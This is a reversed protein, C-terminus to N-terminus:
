ISPNIYLVRRVWAPFASRRMAWLRNLHSVLSRRRGQRGGYHGALTEALSALGLGKSQICPNFVIFPSSVDKMSRHVAHALPDVPSVHNRGRHFAIRGVPNGGPDGGGPGDMDPVHPLNEGAVQDVLGHNLAAERRLEEIDRIVEVREPLHVREEGLGIGFPHSLRDRIDGAGAPLVPTICVMEEGREERSERFQVDGGTYVERTFQVPRTGVRLLDCSSDLMCPLDPVDELADRAPGEGRVPGGEVGDAADAPLEGRGPDQLM